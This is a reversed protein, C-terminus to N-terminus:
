RRRLTACVAGHQSPSEPEVECRLVEWRRDCLVYDIRLWRHDWTMPNSVDGPFTFGYGLGAKAHADQLRGTLQRYLPGVPPVNFDGCVVVPLRESSVLATLESILHVQQEFIQRQDPPLTGPVKERGAFRLLEHRPSVLHVSFLAVKGQPSALEFRAVKFWRMVTGDSMLHDMRVIAAGIIPHKSLLQFESVRSRHPYAAYEPAGPVYAGADNSEQFAMVDPQVASIYDALTHGHAQGRNCTLVRLTALDTATSAPIPPQHTRWSWVSGSYIFAAAAAAAPLTRCRGLLGLIGAAFWGATWAQLPVFVLLASWEHRQGVRHMLLALALVLAWVVWGIRRLWPRM